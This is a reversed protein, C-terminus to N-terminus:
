LLVCGVRRFWRLDRMPGQVFRLQMWRMNQGIYMAERVLRLHCVQRRMTRLRFRYFVIEFLLRDFIISLFSLDFILEIKDFHVCKHTDLVSQELQVTWCHQILVCLLVCVCVVYRYCNRATKSLFDFRSSTQGNKIIM